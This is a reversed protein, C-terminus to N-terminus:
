FHLYSQMSVRSFIPHHVPLYCMPVHGECEQPPTQMSGQASLLPLWLHPRSDQKQKGATDRSELGWWCKVSDTYSPDHSDHTDCYPNTGNPTFRQYERNNQQHCSGGSQNHVKVHCLCMEDKSWKLMAEAMLYSNPYLLTQALQQKNYFLVYRQCLFSVWTLPHEQLGQM